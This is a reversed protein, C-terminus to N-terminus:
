HGNKYDVLNQPTDEQLKLFVNFRDHLNVTISNYADHRLQIQYLSIDSEKVDDWLAAADDTVKYICVEVDATPPLRKPALPRPGAQITLNSLKPVKRQPEDPANTIPRATRAITFAM